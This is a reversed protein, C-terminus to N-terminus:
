KKRKFFKSVKGIFDRSELKKISTKLRAIKNEYENSVVEFLEPHILARAFHDGISSLPHGNRVVLFLNQRYWREILQNDWIKPRFFDIMDYGQKRFLNQWYKPWQENIHNQGGQGPVAASFLIVDAHATLSEILGSASSDPLHEAVELCIVLDFKRKLDFPETLNKEVFEGANIKLLSRDVYDGDVGVVDPVGLKKAVQIWNGLGCGVDLISHPQYVDFLVPLLQEAARSNHIIEDHIYPTSM